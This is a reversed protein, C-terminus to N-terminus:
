DRISMCRRKWAIPLMTTARDDNRFRNLSPKTSNRMAHMWRAMSYMPSSIARGTNNSENLSTSAMSLVTIANGFMICVSEDEIHIEVREEKSKKM